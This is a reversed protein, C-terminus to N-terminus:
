ASAYGRLEEEIIQGRSDWAKQGLDEIRIDEIMTNFDDMQRQSNQRGGEM